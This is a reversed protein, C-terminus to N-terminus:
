QRPRRQPVYLVCDVVVDPLPHHANAAHDAVLERLERLFGACEPEHFCKGCPRTCRLETTGGERHACEVVVDPLPHHSWAAHDAVLERLERIFAAYEPEHSCRACVHTIRLESVDARRGERAMM